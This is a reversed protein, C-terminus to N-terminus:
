KLILDTEHFFRIEKNLEKAYAVEESMGVSLKDSIFVWVEDCYKIVELGAKMAFERESALEDNMFRTFYIHPAIPICSTNDYVYRCYKIAKKINGEIDGRLRSCVYIYKNEKM